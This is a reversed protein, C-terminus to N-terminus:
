GKIAGVVLGNLMYKQGFIFAAIVPAVTISVLAFVPGMDIGGKSVSFRYIGMILTDTKGGGGSYYILPTQFDNWYWFVTTIILTGTAPMLLPFIIRIFTSYMNCGDISASEELEIPITKMFGTYLMIQYAPSCVYLIILFFVTNIIHLNVGLKYLIAMSSQTPVILGLMFYFYISKFFGKKARGLVFGAMSAFLINITIAVATIFLTLAFGKLVSVKRFLELYNGWYTFDPLVFFNYVDNKTKFSSIFINIIPFLFFLVIIYLVAEIFIDLKKEYRNQRNGTNM